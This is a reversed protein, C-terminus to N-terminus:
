GPKCLLSVMRRVLPLILLLVPFAVAWSMAWASMWLGLFTPPLGVSRMTAVASIIFTMCLSLLLPMVFRAWSAPLRYDARM